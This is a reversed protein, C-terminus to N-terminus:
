APKYFHVMTRDIDWYQQHKEDTVFSGLRILFMATYWPFMSPSLAINLLREMVACAADLEALRKARGAAAQLARQVVDHDAM